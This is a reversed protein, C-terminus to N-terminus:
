CSSSISGFSVIEPKKVRIGTGRSLIAFVYASASLAAPKGAHATALRPHHGAAPRGIREADLRHDARRWAGTVTESAVERRQPAVSLGVAATGALEDVLSVM